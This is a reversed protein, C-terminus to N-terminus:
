GAKRRRGGVDSGFRGIACRTEGSASLAFAIENLMCRMPRQVFMDLIRLKM